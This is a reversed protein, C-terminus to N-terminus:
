LLKRPKYARGARSQKKQQMREILQTEEEVWDDEADEWVDEVQQKQAQQQGQELNV